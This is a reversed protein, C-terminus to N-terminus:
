HKVKYLRFLKEIAKTQANKELEAQIRSIRSPSVGGLRAVEGLPLNCTRRLLYVAAKFALQHSRDLVVQPTIQFVDAVASVVHSLVWDARLWAPLVCQGVTARYSSWPWEDATPVMGARVPNLVVYRCLELLHRQKLIPSEVAGCRTHRYRYCRFFAALLCM